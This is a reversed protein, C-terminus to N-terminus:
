FIIQYLLRKFVPRGFDFCHRFGFERGNPIWVSIKDNWVLCLRLHAVNPKTRNLETWRARYSYVSLTQVLGFQVTTRNAFSPQFISRRSVLSLSRDSYWVLLENNPRQSYQLLSIIIILEVNEILFSYCNTNKILFTSHQAVSNPRFCCLRLKLPVLVNWRQINWLQEYGIKYSEYKRHFLLYM